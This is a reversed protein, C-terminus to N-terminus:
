KKKSSVSYAHKDYIIKTNSNSVSTLMKASTAM